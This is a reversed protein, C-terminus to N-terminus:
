GRMKELIKESDNIGKWKPEEYDLWNGAPHPIQYKVTEERVEM